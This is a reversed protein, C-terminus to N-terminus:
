AGCICTLSKRSNKRSLLEIIERVSSQVSAMGKEGSKRCVIFYSYNKRSHVQQLTRSVGPANRRVLIFLDETVFGFRQFASILEVHTLRQVNACVEDGCKVIFLGNRRLVRWAEGAAEFYLALVAEHYKLGRKGNTGNNRYYHEYNQHNVHATGGPTHMYPPDLVVCDIEGNSYPLDRCDVGTQLDTPRLDYKGSPVNRWFVGRGYTVDAVKSGCELYLDLIQPFLEDSNGVRAGFVLKNTSVGDPSKRKPRRARTEATRIPRDKRLQSSRMEPGEDERVRRFEM